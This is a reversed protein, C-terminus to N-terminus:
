RSLLRDSAPQWLRSDRRAAGHPPCPPRAHSLRHQRHERQSEAAEAQQRRLMARALEPAYSLRTLRSEVVSVGAPAARAAIEQSLEHTIDETNERLSVNRVERADYPYSMGTHRVATEAQIAVFQTFDDVDCVARATDRVQWVVVAAIEIPNGGPDNVKRVPTEHNRIGM